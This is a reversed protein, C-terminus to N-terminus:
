NFRRDTGPNETPPGGLMISDLSQVFANSTVTDVIYGNAGAELTAVVYRSDSSAGLVILRAHPYLKRLAIVERLAMSGSAEQRPDVSVIFLTARSDFSLNQPLDIISAVSEIPRYKTKCLLSALGERFLTRSDVLVTATDM